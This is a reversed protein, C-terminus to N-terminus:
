CLPLFSFRQLSIKQTHLYLIFFFLNMGSIQCRVDSVQCRVGSMQCRVDSAQCVVGSMNVQCVVGSLTPRGKSGSVVRTTHPKPFQARHDCKRHLARVGDLVTCTSHLGEEGSPLRMYIDSKNHVTQSVAWSPSLERPISEGWRASHM